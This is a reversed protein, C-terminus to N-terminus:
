MVLTMDLVQDIGRLELAERLIHWTNPVLIPNPLILASTLEHVQHIVGVWQSQIDFTALGCVSYAQVTVEIQPQLRALEQETAPTSACRLWSRGFGGSGGLWHTCTLGSLHRSATHM